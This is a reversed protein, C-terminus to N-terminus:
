HHRHALRLPPRTGNTSRMEEERQKMHAFDQVISTALDELRRIELELPKLNEVKAIEDYNRGEVGTLEDLTVLHLM